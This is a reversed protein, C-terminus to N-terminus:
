IQRQWTARTVLSLMTSHYLLQVRSFTKYTNMYMM